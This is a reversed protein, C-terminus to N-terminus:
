GRQPVGLGGLECTEQGGGVVDIDDLVIELIGSGQSFDVLESKIAKATHLAM